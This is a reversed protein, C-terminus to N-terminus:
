GISIRIRQASKQDSELSFWFHVLLWSNKTHTMLQLMHTWFYIGLEVSKFDNWILAVNTAIRLM